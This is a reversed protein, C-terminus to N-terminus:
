NTPVIESSAGVPRALKGLRARLQKVIHEIFNHLDAHDKELIASKRELLYLTRTVCPESILRWSLTGEDIDKQVVGYPLVSCAIGKKVLDTTASPSQTEYVINMPLHLREATGAVAQRVLDREGALVLNQRSLEYFPIPKGSHELDPPFIAILDEEMIAKVSIGPHNVSKYALVADLHDEVISSVLNYSLAETLSLHVNPMIDRSEVQISGILSTISATAGFRITKRENGGFKAIEQRAEELAQIIGVARKYLLKGADTTEMGRSHRELLLVGLEEELNRIQLGLAPQAVHLQESAGTLSGIEVVKM